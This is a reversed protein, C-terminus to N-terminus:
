QVAGSTNTLSYNGVGVVADIQASTVQTSTTVEIEAM